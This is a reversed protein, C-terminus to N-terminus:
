RDKRRARWARLNESASTVNAESATRNARAARPAYVAGAAVNYGFSLSYNSNYSSPGAGGLAVGQYYQTGGQTYSSGVGASASPLLAGYATKITADAQRVYNRTQALQPNNQRAITIADELSLPGGSTAPAQALLVHAPIALLAVLRMSRM